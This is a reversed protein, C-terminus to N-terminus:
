EAVARAAGAARNGGVRRQQEVDLQQVDFLSANNERAEKTARRCRLKRSIQIPRKTENVPDIICFAPSSHCTESSTAGSRLPSASPRTPRTRTTGITSKEIILPTTASAHSRRRNISNVCTAAVATAIPRATRANRRTVI